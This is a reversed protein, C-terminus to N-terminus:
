KNKLTEIDEKLQEINDKLQGKTNVGGTYTNGCYEENLQQNEDIDKPISELYKQSEKLYTELKTLTQKERETLTQFDNYQEM